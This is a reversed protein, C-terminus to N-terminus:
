LISLRRPQMARSSARTRSCFGGSPLKKVSCIVRYFREFEDDCRTDYWFGLYDMYVCINTGTLKPYGFAWNTYTVPDGNEWIFSGSLASFM